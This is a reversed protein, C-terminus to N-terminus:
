VRLPQCMEPKECLLDYVLEWLYAFAGIQLEGLGCAKKNLENVRERSWVFLSGTVDHSKLPGISLRRDFTM